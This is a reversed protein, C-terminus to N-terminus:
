STERGPQQNIANLRQVELREGATGGPIGRICSIIQEIGFPKEIRAFVEKDCDIPLENEDAAMIVRVYPIRPDQLLHTCMDRSREPGLSCDIVVYDPRSGEVLASCSYECDTIELKFPATSAGDRLETALSRNDTLVLVNTAQAHVRRYYDCDDCTGNCFLKTHTGPLALRVVEYCRQARMLYVVCEKCGDLLKGKGNHEWCFSFPRHRESPGLIPRSVPRVSVFSQLDQIAIRHHGGATKRAQLRGSRIWKLVTDPTVSCLRAAQGTSLFSADTVSAM